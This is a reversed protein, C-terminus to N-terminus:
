WDTSCEHHEGATARDRKSVHDYGGYQDDKNLRVTHGIKMPKNQDYRGIEFVNEGYETVLSKYSDYTVTYSKPQSFAKKDSKRFVFYLVDKTM